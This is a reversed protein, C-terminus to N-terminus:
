WGAADVDWLPVSKTAAVVPATIRAPSETWVSVLPRAAMLRGSPVRVRSALSVVMRSSEACKVLVPLRCSTVRLWFTPRVKVLTCCRADPAVNSTM